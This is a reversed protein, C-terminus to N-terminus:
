ISICRFTIATDVQMRALRIVEIHIVRTNDKKILLMVQTTFEPKTFAIRQITM